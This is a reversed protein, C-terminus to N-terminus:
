CESLRRAQDAFRIPVLKQALSRAFVTVFLRHGTSATTLVGSIQRWRRAVSKEGDWERARSQASRPRNRAASKRDAFRENHDGIGMKRLRAASKSREGAAKKPSRISLEKLRSELPRKACSKM